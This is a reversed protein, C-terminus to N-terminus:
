VGVKPLFDEIQEGFTEPVIPKAIYADFGAGLARERDSDMALATVAIVPVARLDPRARLRGLLVPGDFDPLMVDCVIVDPRSEVAAEMAAEGNTVGVVDHGRARLLYLMLDLSAPHDEVVLIRSGTTM